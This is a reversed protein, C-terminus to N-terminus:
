REEAASVSVLSLKSASTAGIIILMAGVVGAISFGLAYSGVGYVYRLLVMVIAFVVVLMAGLPVAMSNIFARDSPDDVVRNVYAPQLARCAQLFVNALFICIVFPILATTDNPLYNSESATALLGLLLIAIGAFIGCLRLTSLGAWLAANSKSQSVLRLALEPGGVRAFFLLFPMWPLLSMHVGNSASQFQQSLLLPGFYLFIMAMLYRGATVIMMARMSQSKVVTVFRSFVGSLFGEGKRGAQDSARAVFSSIDEVMKSHAIVAALFSLFITVLWPYCLSLPQGDSWKSAVQSSGLYTVALLALVSGGTLGVTFIQNGRAFIRELVVTEDGEASSLRDVIWADMSGSQFSLGVALCFEAVIAIVIVSVGAADRIVGTTLTAVSTTLCYIMFACSMLAFAIVTARRRGWMDAYRGTLPEAICEFLMTAALIWLMYSLPNEIGLASCIRDLFWFSYYGYIGYFLGFILNLQFYLLASVRARSTLKIGRFM